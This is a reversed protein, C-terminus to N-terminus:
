IMRPLFAERPRSFIPLGELNVKQNKIEKKFNTNFLSNLAQPLPWDINGVWLSARAAKSHPQASIATNLCVSEEKILSMLLRGDTQASWMQKM